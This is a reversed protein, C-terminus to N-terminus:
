CDILCFYQNMYWIDVGEIDVNHDLAVDLGTKGEEAVVEIRDGSREEFFQFRVKNKPISCFKAKFM